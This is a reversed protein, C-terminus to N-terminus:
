SSMTQKEPWSLSADLFFVNVESDLELPGNFCDLFAFLKYGGFPTSCTAQVQAPPHWLWKWARRSCVRSDDKATHVPFPLVARIVHIPVWCPLFSFPFNIKLLYAFKFIYLTFFFDKFCTRRRLTLDCYFFKQGLMESIKFACFKLHNKNLCHLPNVCEFILIRPLSFSCLIQM